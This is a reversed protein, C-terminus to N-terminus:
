TGRSYIDDMLQSNNIVKSEVRVGVMIAVAEQCLSQDPILFNRWARALINLAEPISLHCDQTDGTVKDSCPASSCSKDVVLGTRGLHNIRQGIWSQFLFTYSRDWKPSEITM